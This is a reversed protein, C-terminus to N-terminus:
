LAWRGVQSSLCACCFTESVTEGVGGLLDPSVHPRQQLGSCGSAPADGGGAPIGGSGHADLMPVGSLNATLASASPETLSHKKMRSSRRPSGAPQAPPATAPPPLSAQKSLTSMVGVAISARRVNREAAKRAETTQPLSDARGHQTAKRAAAEDAIKEQLSLPLM